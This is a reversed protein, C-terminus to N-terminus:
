EAPTPKDAVRPLPSRLERKKKLRKQPIRIPLEQKPGEKDSMFGSQDSECLPEHESPIDSDSHTGSSEKVEISINQSGENHFVPISSDLDSAHNIGDIPQRIIEFVKSTFEENINKMKEDASKVMSESSSLIKNVDSDCVKTSDPTMDTSDAEKALLAKFKEEADVIQAPERSPSEGTTPKLQPESALCSYKTKITKTSQDFHEGLPKSIEKLPTKTKNVLQANTEIVPHLKSQPESTCHEAVTDLTSPKNENSLKVKDLTPKLTYSTRPEATEEIVSKRTKTKHRVYSEVKEEVVATFKEEIVSKRSLKVQHQVYSEAKEEVAIKKEEETTRRASKSKHEVFIEDKEELILKAKEELASRRSSKIKHEMFTKSSQIKGEVNNEPNQELLKTKEEMASRRSSKVKHEM